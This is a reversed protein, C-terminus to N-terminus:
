AAINKNSIFELVELKKLLEKQKIPELIILPPLLNKFKVDQLSMFSHLSSILNYQDFVDRVKILKENVKQETKKEFDDFM